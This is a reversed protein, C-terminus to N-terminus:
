VGGVDEPPCARKGKVCVPVQQGPEPSLVKEVQLIHVWSDGFDYEYRFRAGKGRAIQNLKVKREDQVDFDYDPDPMGYYTGGVIFQHLHCDSWGM